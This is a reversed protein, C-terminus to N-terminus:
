HHWVGVPWTGRESLMARLEQTCPTASLVSPAWLVLLGNQNLFLADQCTHCLILFSTTSFNSVTSLLIYHSAHILPSKFYILLELSLYVCCKHTSIKHKSCCSNDKYADCTNTIWCSVCWVTLWTTVNWNHCCKWEWLYKYINRHFKHSYKFLQRLRPCSRLYDKFYIYTWLHPGDIPRCIHFEWPWGLPRWSLEAYDQSNEQFTIFLGTHKSHTINYSLCKHQSSWFTIIWFDCYTDQCQSGAM